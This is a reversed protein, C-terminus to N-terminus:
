AESEKANHLVTLAENVRAVLDNENELIALLDTPEMELMMATIQDVEKINGMAKIKMSIREGLIQKQDRISLSSLMQSTIVSGPGIDHINFQHPRAYGVNGSKTRPSQNNQPRQIHGMRNQRGGNMGNGRAFHSSDQISQMFHTNQASPNHGISANGPWQYGPNRIQTPYIPQPAMYSAARQAPVPIPQVPMFYSSSSTPNFVSAPIGSQNVMRIAALRQMYQGALQAKRDEKRQALAVYLPKSRLMKNNMEMVAKTADDPKEFCVFGFGKSVGNDNCMIKVSILPGYPEFNQRLADDTITDDLNKVFLNVGHYSQMRELKLQDHRRKLEAQRENKTQLRCVTLKRTTGPLQYDNMTAVAKEAHEPNEFCVFGFGRSNGSEDTVAVASTIAGFQEFLNQLKETDLEQAFNKVYINNFRSARDGLERLRAAKPLFKGVYIPKGELLMGNVKDIAKQAAEETEFHIFGYGRSTGNLDTAIKCSIINGFMSFTDYISKTDIEKDLNKIFVNGSGSRRTSPDRQSWMIRIPKNLILDFNMDNLAREAHAHQQFNVYAYGLSARSVADRCVRISLVPGVSSFKEFLMAETVDPHLDGVYLSSPTRVGVNVATPVTAAAISM